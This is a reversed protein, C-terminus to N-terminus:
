HSTHRIYSSNEGGLVHRFTLSVSRRVVKSVIQKMSFTSFDVIFVRREIKRNLQFFYSSRINQM